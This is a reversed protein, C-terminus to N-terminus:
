INYNIDISSPETILKSIINLQISNNNFQFDATHMKLAYQFRHFDISVTM